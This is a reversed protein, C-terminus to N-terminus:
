LREFVSNPSSSSGMPLPWTPLLVIGWLRFGIWLSHIMTRARDSRALAPWAMSTMIWSFSRSAEAHFVSHIM